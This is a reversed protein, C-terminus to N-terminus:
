FDNPLETELKSTNRQPNDRVLQYQQEITAVIPDLLDLQALVTFVTDVNVGKGLELRSITNVSTGTRLALEHQDMRTARTQKILQGLLTKAYEADNM